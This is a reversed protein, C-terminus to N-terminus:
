ICYWWEATIKDYGKENKRVHPLVALMATKVARKVEREEEYVRGECREVCQVADIFLGNVEALTGAPLKKEGSEHLDEVLEIARKQLREVAQNVQKTIAM